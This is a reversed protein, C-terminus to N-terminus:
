NNGNGRVKGARGQEGSRLPTEKVPPQDPERAVPRQDPLAPLPLPQAHNYDIRAAAKADEQYITVGGKQQIQRHNDAQPLPASYGPTSVFSLWGWLSIPLRKRLSGHAMTGSRVKRRIVGIRMLGVAPM